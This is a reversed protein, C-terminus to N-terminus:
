SGSEKEGWNLFVTNPPFEDPKRNPKRYENLGELARLIWLAKLISRWTYSVSNSPKAEFTYCKPFYKAKFMTAMLSNSDTLIRSGQTALLAENFVRFNRFRM